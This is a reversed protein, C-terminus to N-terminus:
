LSKNFNFPTPSYVAAAIATKKLSTTGNHVPIHKPITENNQHLFQYQKAQWLLKCSQSSNIGFSLGAVKVANHLETSQL